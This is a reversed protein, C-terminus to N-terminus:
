APRRLLSEMVTKAIPAATHGGVGHQNELFVSIAVRPADAPAFAIFSTTNLGTTGAGATPNFAAIVTSTQPVPKTPDTAPNAVVPSYAPIARTTVQASIASIITTLAASLDGATDAFYAKTSGGAVTRTTGWGVDPAKVLSYVLLLMGGTVLFAGVADFHRLGGRMRDLWRLRAIALLDYFSEEDDPM